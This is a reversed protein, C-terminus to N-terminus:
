QCCQVFEILEEMGKCVQNSNVLLKFVKRKGKLGKLSTGSPYNQPMSLLINYTDENTFILTHFINNNTFAHLAKLKKGATDWGVRTSPLCIQFYLGFNAKGGDEYERKQEKKM